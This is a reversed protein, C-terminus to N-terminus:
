QEGGSQNDAAAPPLATFDQQPGLHLAPRRDYESVLTHGNSVLSYLKAPLNKKGVEKEIQAPSKLERSYIKEEDFGAENAWHMVDVANNWVRVARKAVLKWGPVPRGAELEAQVRMKLSVVWHELVDVKTLISAIVELPLTEAAPPEVVTFDKQAVEIAYRKVEPCFAQAPCFKCWAGAHLPADPTLTAAAKHILRAAFDRVEQHSVHATRIPGDAHPARPQVVHVWVDDFQALAWSLIEDPSTQVTGHNRWFDVLVGLVYYLLQVNGNVEVPVGAGYKLDIVDLRRNGIIVADATGFMPENGPPELASLDFTVEVGVQKGGEALKAVYDVYAKVHAIMEADSEDESGFVVGMGSVAGRLVQEAFSHARRGEAAYPTDPGPGVARSMRVSGPCHM